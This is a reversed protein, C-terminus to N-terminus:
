IKEDDFEEVRHRNTICKKVFQEYSKPKDFDNTLDNIEVMNDKFVPGGEKSIGASHRYLTWSSDAWKLSPDLIGKRVEKLVKEMMRKNVVRLAFIESVGFGLIRSVGIRGFWMLSEVPTEVMTRMAEKTFFSDGWLLLTDGGWIERCCAMKDIELVNNKPAYLKAGKVAYKKDHTTIYIDDVGNKQLLAVTRELLTQGFFTILHKPRDLYNNWRTGPGDAMIIARIKKKM